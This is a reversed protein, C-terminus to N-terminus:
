NVLGKFQVVITNIYQFYNTTNALGSAYLKVYLRASNTPTTNTLTWRAEDVDAMRVTRTIKDSLYHEKASARSASGNLSTLASNDGRDVVSFIPFNNTSVSYKNVPLLHVRFALIRYEEFIGSLATWQSTATLQSASDFVTDLVGAGSSAVANTIKLSFTHCDLQEAASPMDIPGNYSTARPHLERFSQGSLANMNRKQSRKKKSFQKTM